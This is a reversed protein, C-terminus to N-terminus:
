RSAEVAHSIELFLSHGHTRIKRCSGQEITLRAYVWQKEGECAGEHAYIAGASGIAWWLGSQGTAQVVLVGHNMDNYTIYEYMCNSYM